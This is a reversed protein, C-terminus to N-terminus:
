TIELESTSGALLYLTEGHAVTLTDGPSCKTVGGYKITHPTSIIVAGAYAKYAFLDNAAIVAPLTRTLSGAAIREPANATSTGSASVTIWQLANATLAAYAGDDRLFAGTSLAPL